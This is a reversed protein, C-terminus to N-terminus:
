RAVTLSAITVVSGSTIRLQYVGSALAGACLAQVDMPLSVLGHFEGHLVIMGLVQGEINIIELIIRDTPVEVNLEVTTATTVPNPYIRATHTNVPYDYVSTSTPDVPDTPDTPDTPDNPDSPSSTFTTFPTMIAYTRGLRIIEARWEKWLNTQGQEKSMLDLLANIRLRAWLKPVFVYTLSDGLLIGNYPTSVSGNVSAGSVTVQIPGSTTYRGGLVFQEGAYIDPLTLPCIDYVVNPSFSVTPNKLLPTSIKDFFASIRSAVSGADTILDVEGRNDASIRRLVDASVNSGIGFVYIRVNDTNRAVIEEFQVPALGDTIFVITNVDNSGKFQDLAANLARMINTGGGLGQASVRNKLVTINETTAQVMGQSLATVVDSFAMVSVYDNPSMRDLCFTVAERAQDFKVGGMSGSIDYLLCVRKTLRESGGTADGKPVTMFLAYGDESGPKCSLIDMQGAQVPITCTFQMATGIATLNGRYRVSTATLEVAGSTPSITHATIPVDFSADLLWEHVDLGMIAKTPYIYSNIGGSYTMLEVWTVEVYVRSNPVASDAIPFVLSLDGTIATLNDRVTSGSGGQGNTMTDSSVLQAVKREGNITYVIGTVTAGTPLPIAYRVAAKVAHPNDFAQLTKTVAIQNRITTTIVATDHRTIRKDGKIAFEAVGGALGELVCILVAVSIMLITKM